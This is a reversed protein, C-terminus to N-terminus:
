FFSEPVVIIDGPLLLVDKTQDGQGTIDNVKVQIVQQKGQADLRLIKTGNPDAIKTFGGALTIVELVTLNNKLVYAGPKTVQGTVYVQSFEKVLVTVHPNVLYEASLLKTLKDEVQSVTLGAIKVRGILPYNIEGDASVRVERCLDPEDYVNVLLLDEPGIKYERPNVEKTVPPVFVPAPAQEGPSDAKSVSFLSSASVTLAEAVPASKIEVEKAPGINVVIQSDRKEVQYDLPSYLYFVLRVIKPDSQYQAQIIKEAWPNKAVPTEQTVPMQISDSFDFFLLDQGAANKGLHHEFQLSDIAQDFTITTKFFQGKNEPEVQIIRYPPEAQLPCALFLGLFFVSLLGLFLVVLLGPM